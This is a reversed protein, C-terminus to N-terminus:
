MYCPAKTCGAFPPSAVHMGDRSVSCSFCRSGRKGKVKVSVMVRLFRRVSGGYCVRVDGGQEGSSLGGTTEFSSVFVLSLRFVCARLRHRPDSRTSPTVTCMCITILVM